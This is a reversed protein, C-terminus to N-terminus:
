LDLTKTAWAVDDLNPRLEKRLAEPNEKEDFARFLLIKAIGYIESANLDRGHQRTWSELVRRELFLSTEFFSKRDATVDFVYQTGLSGDQERMRMGAFYYQYVYGSQASYTKQRRVTPSAQRATGSERKRGFLKEWLSM